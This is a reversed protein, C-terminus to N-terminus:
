RKMKFLTHRDMLRFVVQVGRLELTMRECHLAPLNAEQFLLIILMEAAEQIASLADVCFSLNPNIGQSIERILFITVACPVFFGAYRRM